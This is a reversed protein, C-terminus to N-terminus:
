NFPPVSPTRGLAHAVFILGERLQHSRLLGDDLPDAPIDGGRLGHAVRCAAALERYKKDAEGRLKELEKQCRNEDVPLGLNLKANNRTVIEYDKKRDSYKKFSTAVKWAMEELVMKVSNPGISRSASGFYLRFQVEEPPISRDFLRQVRVLIHSLNTRPAM